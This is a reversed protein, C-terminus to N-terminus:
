LRLLQREEGVDNSFDGIETRKRNLKVKTSVIWIGRVSIISTITNGNNVHYWKTQKNSTYVNCGKKKPIWNELSVLWHNSAFELSLPHGMCDLRTGCSLLAYYIVIYVRFLSSGWRKLYGNKKRVEFLIYRLVLCNSDEKLVM